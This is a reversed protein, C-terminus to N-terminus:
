SSAARQRFEQPTQGTWRKFARSFASPESFALLYAIESISLGDDRLYEAALSGRAREIIEAYTTGEERLQRQLTRAGVGLARAVDDLSPLGLRASRLLEARVRDALGLKAAARSQTLLHDAHRQLTRRLYEDRRPLPADWCQRSFVLANRETQVIERTGTATAYDTIAALLPGAVEVRVPRCGAAQFARHAFGALSYDRLHFAVGTPVILWVMECSVLAGEDHIQYRVSQTAVAFYKFFEALGEGLTTGTLVLYDLVEYAGIPVAPGAALGLGPRNWFRDAVEWMRYMRSAPILRDPDSLEGRTLATEQRIRQVDLGLRAFAELM